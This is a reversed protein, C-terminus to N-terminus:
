LCRCVQHSSISNRNIQSKLQQVWFIIEVRPLDPVAIAGGQQGGNLLVTVGGDVQADHSVLVGVLRGDSVINITEMYKELKINRKEGGTTEQTAPERRHTEGIGWLGSSRRFARFSPMLRASTMMVEPPTDMPSFTCPCFVTNWQCRKTGLLVAAM